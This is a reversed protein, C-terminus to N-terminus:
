VYDELDPELLEKLRLRARNVRSKVTGLPCRLIKAIQQYELGSIDRLLIVERFKDPLVSVARGVKESLETRQLEELPDAADADGVLGEYDEAAREPWVTARRGMDRIYNLTLNRAITYLWVSFTSGPRYSDRRTYVRVFTEQALDEATQYQGVMRYVFNLVRDKYRDVLATFAEQDGTQVRRMLADDRVEPPLDDPSGRDSPEVRPETARNGEAMYQSVDPRRSRM